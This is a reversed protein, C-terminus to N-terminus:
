ATLAARLAGELTPHRFTYGSREAVRPFVRQSSLLIASMEGTAIRLAAEPVAFITPRHLVSGLARTFEANTAPAPGVANAPGSVESKEVVHLAIGVVDDVHIWPMWQRGSGLRGGLGLRFPPLMKALAGGQRGLVIGLRLCVPRVGIEAARATEAEWARCLDALFDRGPASSEDLTEDNRNGYFGVASASVLVKPRTDLGRMGEVLNHTGTVRSERMRNKREDTWRASIPEGALNFVAEVGDFAEAAPPGAAPDWHFPTVGPPLIRRAHDPDRTLVTAGPLRSLLRRGIFGTGGTVLAKM